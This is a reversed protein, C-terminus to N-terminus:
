NKTFINLSKLFVRNSKNPSLKFALFWLLVVFVCNLLILIIVNEFFVSTFYFLIFGFISIFIIHLSEKFNFPVISYFYYVEYTKMLNVIIDSISIALAVGWFHKEGFLFVFGIVVLFKIFGNILEFHSKNGMLLVTGNPGTISNVFAGCLILKLMVNGQSYGSGLYSLILESNFFLVFFVPILFFANISSIEQFKTRLTNYDKEIFAKSFIPMGVNAFNQGFITLSQGILFAVSLYGVVKYDFFFGQLVKSYENFFIYFLQILFFVYSKKLFNINPKVIKLNSWLFPIIIIFNAIITAYILIYHSTELIKLFILFIVAIILKVFFITKKTSNDARGIGILYSRYLGISILSFSMLFLMLYDWWSSFNIALPTFPLIMLLAIISTYFVGSLVGRKDILNPFIKPFYFATGFSLVLVLTNAFGMFYNYKGFEFAGLIKAAIFQITIGFIVGLISYMFSIIGKKFIEM